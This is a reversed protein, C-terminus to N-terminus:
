LAAERERANIFKRLASEKIRILKGIEVVPLKHLEVYKRVQRESVRLREAVEACTLLQTDKIEQTETM